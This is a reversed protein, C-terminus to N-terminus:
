HSEDLQKVNGAGDTSKFAHRLRRHKDGPTVDVQEPDRGRGTGPVSREGGARDRAAAARDHVADNRLCVMGAGASGNWWAATRCWMGGPRSSGSVAWVEPM